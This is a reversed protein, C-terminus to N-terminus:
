PLINELSPDMQHGRQDLIGWRRYKEQQVCPVSKFCNGCLAKQIRLRKYIFSGSCSEAEPSYSLLPSLECTIHKPQLWKSGTSATWELSQYKPTKETCPLIILLLFALNDLVAASFQSFSAHLDSFRFYAERAGPKGLNRAGGGKFEFVM